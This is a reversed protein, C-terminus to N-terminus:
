NSQSCLLACNCQTYSFFSLVPTLSLVLNEERPFGIPVQSALRVVVEQFSRRLTLRTRSLSFRPVAAAAAEFFQPTVPHIPPSLFDEAISVKIQTCNKGLSTHEVSCKTSSDTKTTTKKGERM